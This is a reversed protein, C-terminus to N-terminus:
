FQNLSAKVRGVIKAESIDVTFPPQEQFNFSSLIYKNEDSRDPSVNKIMLQNDLLVLYTKDSAPLTDNKDVMVFSGDPFNPTMSNGKVKIAITSSTDFNLLKSPIQITEDCYDLPSRGDKGGQAEYYPVTAIGQEVKSLIIYDTPNAPNIKLYGKDVLKQIHYKVHSKNSLDLASAIEALTEGGLRNKLFDLLRIQVGTLKQISSNYNTNELDQNNDSNQNDSNQIKDLTQNM